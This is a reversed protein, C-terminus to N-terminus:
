VYTKREEKRSRNRVTEEKKTEERKHSVHMIIDTLCRVDPHAILMQEITGRQERACTFELPKEESGSFRVHFLILSSEDQFFDARSYQNIVEFKSPLGQLRGTWTYTAPRYGKTVPLALAPIRWERGQKVACRIKGRRIRSVSAVHTIEQLAAYEEVTMLNARAQFLEYMVGPAGAEGREQDAAANETKEIILSIGTGRTEMAYNWGDPADFLQSRETMGALQQLVHVMEMGYQRTFGEQGASWLSIQWGIAEKIDEKTRILGGQAKDM